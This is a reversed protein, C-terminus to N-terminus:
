TFFSYKPVQKQMNYRAKTYNSNSKILAKYVQIETNM